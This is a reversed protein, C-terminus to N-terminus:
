ARPPSQSPSLLYLRARVETVQSGKAAAAAHALVWADPEVVAVSTLVAAQTLAALIKCEHHSDRDTPAGPDRPDSRPPDPHLVEGTTLSLVHPHIGLHLLGLAHSVLLLM